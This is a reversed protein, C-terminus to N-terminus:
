VLAGPSTNEPSTASYGITNLSEVVVVILEGEALGFSNVDTLATMPITCARSSLM